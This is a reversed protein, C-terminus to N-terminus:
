VSTALRINDMWCRCGFHILLSWIADFISYPGKSEAEQCEECVREDGMTVWDAILDGLVMAGMMLTGLFAEHHTTLWGFLGMKDINDQVDQFAPEIEKECETRLEEESMHPYRTHMQLMCKTWKSTPTAKLIISKEVSTDNPEQIANILIFQRLRGRLKLGIDEINFLQQQLILDLKNTQIKKTNYSKKNDINKLEKIGDNVGKDWTEPLSTNVLDQGESIFTDILKNIEKIQEDPTSNSNLVKTTDKYLQETLKLLDERYKLEEPTAQGEGLNKNPQFDLEAKKELPILGLTKFDDITLDAAIILTDLINKNIRVKDQNQCSICM